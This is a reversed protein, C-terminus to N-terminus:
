QRQHAQHQLLLRETELSARRQALAQANLPAADGRQTLLRETKLRMLPQGKQVAQGERVLLEAVEGAQPASVSILGAGQVLFGPMRAKRTVEGRTAFSALVLALLLTVGTVWAFSPPRAIRISGLWQAQRQQLVESRFLLRVATGAGESM